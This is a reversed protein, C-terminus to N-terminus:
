DSKLQRCMAKFHGYGGCYNCQQNVAPCYNVNTHPRRGCKGCRHDQSQGDSSWQQQQGRFASQPRQQFSQTYTGRFNQGRGRGRFTTPYRNAAREYTSTQPGYNTEFRSGRQGSRKDTLNYVRPTDQFSVRRPTPPPTPSRSRDNQIAANLSMSDYRHALQQIERRMESLQTSVQDSQTPANVASFEAIQAADVAEAFSQPNRGLVYSALPARLGSLLAYLLTKDDVSVRKSLNRLRNIYADVTEDTRQKKGFIECASRFQLVSPQIFREKFAAELNAYSNKKAADLSEIWDCGGDVFMAKALRLKANDDNGKYTNYTNLRRWFEAADEEPTGRFPSPLLAREEAMSLENTAVEEEEEQEIQDEEEELDDGVQGFNIQVPQLPQALNDTQDGEAEQEFINDDDSEPSDTTPYQSTASPPLLVVTSELPPPTALHYHVEPKSSRLSRKQPGEIIHSSSIAIHTTKGEDKHVKQKSM